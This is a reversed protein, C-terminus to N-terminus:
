SFSASLGLHNTSLKAVSVRRQRGQQSVNVGHIRPLGNLLQLNVVRLPAFVIVLGDLEPAADPIYLADSRRM